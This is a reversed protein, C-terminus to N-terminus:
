RSDPSPDLRIGNVYDLDSFVPMRNTGYFRPSIQYWKKKPFDQARIGISWYNRNLYDVPDAPGPIDLLGLKYMKVPFLEKSGYWENYAYKSTTIWRDGALQVPFIMIATDTVAPVSVASSLRYGGDRLDTLGLGAQVLVDTLSLLEDVYEEQILITAQSQGRTLRQKEVASLLVTGTIVFPIGKKEFLDKVVQLLRYLRDNAGTLYGYVPLFSEQTRPIKSKSVKGKLFFCLLMALFIVTVADM